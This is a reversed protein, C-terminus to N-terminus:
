IVNQNWSTQMITSFSLSTAANLSKLSSPGAGEEAGAVGEGGGGGAGLAAAAGGGGGGTDAGAGGLDSPM